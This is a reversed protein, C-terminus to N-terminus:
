AKTGSNASRAKQLGYSPWYITKQEQKPQSQQKVVAALKKIQQHQQKNKKQQKKAKKKALHEAEMKRVSAVHCKAITMNGQGDDNGFVLVPVATEDQWETVWVAELATAHEKDYIKWTCRKVADAIKAVYTVGFCCIKRDTSGAAPVRYYKYTAVYKQVIEGTLTDEFEFALSKSSRESHKSTLM